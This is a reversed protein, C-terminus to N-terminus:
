CNSNMRSTSCDSHRQWRNRKFNTMNKGTFSRSSESYLCVHWRSCCNCFHQIIKEYFTWNKPKIQHLICIIQYQLDIFFFNWLSPILKGAYKEFTRHDNTYWCSNGLLIYAPKIRHLFCMLVFLSFLTTHYDPTRILDKELKAKDEFYRNISKREDDTIDEANIDFDETNYETKWTLLKINKWYNKRYTGSNHSNKLKADDVKQGSWLPELLIIIYASDPQM